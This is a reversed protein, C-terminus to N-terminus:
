PPATSSTSPPIAARQSEPERHRGAGPPPPHSRAAAHRGERHLHHRRHPAARGAAREDDTTVLDVVRDVLATTKGSGPARKSSCRAASTPTSATARRRIPLPRLWRRCRWPPRRRRLPPSSRRSRSSSSRTRPSAPDHRKREWAHRLDVSGLGDPDCAPCVWPSTSQDTPGHPSPAQRSAASWRRSPAASGTSCARDASLGEARIGKPRPSGTSPWVPADPQEQHLAPLWATSLCSCAPAARTPTTRARAETATTGGTKYDIVHITGDAWLDVRDAKGRFHVERGDPLQNSGRRSRGWAPRVGAGRRGAGGQGSWRRETDATVFAIWTACSGCGTVGGSCRGVPSVASRTTTASSRASRAAAPSPRRPGPSDRTPDIQDGPRQLVEAVFRELARHFLDGKSLATIRLEEEPNEVPRVRLVDQLLYALPCTAVARAQHRLHGVSSRRRCRSAMCTATSARSPLPGAVDGVVSASAVVVPDDDDALDAPGVPAAALLSRLRHEQETSPEDLSRLGGDFSAVHSLWPEDRRQPPRRVVISQGGPCLRVRAGLAIARARQQAAPRGAFPWSSTAAAPSPRWCSATSAGSWMPGAPRARWRHPARDHDPLLADDRVTSPFPAKPWAWSSSSTSTSASAWASQGSFCVKAWVALGGSTTIWSSRSRTPSWTSGSPARSTMLRRWVTSRESSRSALVSSTARGAGATTPLASSTTCSAAPGPSTSAGAARDNAAAVQLDDILDLAFERLARPMTRM